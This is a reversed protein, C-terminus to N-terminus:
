DVVIRVNEEHNQMVIKLIYIGKPLRSINLEHKQDANEAKKLLVTQGTLNMLEFQVYGNGNNHIEIFILDSAPNPYVQLGPKTDITEAATIETIDTAIFEGSKLSSSSIKTTYTCYPKGKGSNYHNQIETRTLARNYLALEDLMGNYYFNPSLNLWGVNIPATSNFTGTYVHTLTRDLNGDIYIGTVNKTGNRVIVIHHWKGDIVQKKSVLNQGNGNADILNFNIKGPNICSVGVWWHLQTVPDDRGIIVNNDSISQSS